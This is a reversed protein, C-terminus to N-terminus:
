LHDAMHATMNPVLWMLWMWSHLLLNGIEKYDVTGALYPLRPDTYRRMTFVGRLREPTARM